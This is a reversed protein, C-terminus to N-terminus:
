ARGARESGWGKASKLAALSRREGPDASGRAKEISNGHLYYDNPAADAAKSRCQGQVLDARFGLHVLLRALQVLKANPMLM